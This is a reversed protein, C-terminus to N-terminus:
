LRRDCLAPAHHPGGNNFAAARDLRGPGLKGQSLISPCASSRSRGWDSPWSGAAVQTDRGRVKRRGARGAPGARFPLSGTIMVCDRHISALQRLGRYQCGFHLIRGDAITTMRHRNRKLGSMARWCYGLAWLGADTGSLRASRPPLRARPLLRRQPTGAKPAQLIQMAAVQLMPLVAIATSSPYWIRWAMADPVGCRIGPRHPM